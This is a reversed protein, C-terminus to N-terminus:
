VAAMNFWSNHLFCSPASIGFMVQHFLNHIPSVYDNGKIFHHQVVYQHYNSITDFPRAM